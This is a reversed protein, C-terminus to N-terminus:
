QLLAMRRSSGVCTRLAALESSSENCKAATHTQTLSLGQHKASPSHCHAVRAIKGESQTRGTCTTNASSPLVLVGATVSTTSTTSTISTISATGTSSSSRRFYLKEVHRGCLGLVGFAGFSRPGRWVVACAVAYRSGPVLYSSFCAWLVQLHKWTGVASALSELPSWLSWLVASGEM